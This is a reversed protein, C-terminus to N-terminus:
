HNAFFTQDEKSVVELGQSQKLLSARQVKTTVRDHLMENLKEHFRLLDLFSNNLGM